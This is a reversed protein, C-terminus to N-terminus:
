PAQATYLALTFFPDDDKDQDDDDEFVFHFLYAIVLFTKREGYVTQLPLNVQSSSSFTIFGINSILM